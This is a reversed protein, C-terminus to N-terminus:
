SNDISSRPRIAVIPYTKAAKIVLENFMEETTDAKIGISSAHFHRVYEALRPVAATENHEIARAFCEISKGMYLLDVSSEKRFNRWWTPLEGFCGPVVIFEDKYQAVHFVLSYKKHTKRGTYTLVVWSKPLLFRFPSSLILEIVPNVLNVLWYNM